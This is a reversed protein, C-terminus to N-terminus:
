AARLLGVPVGGRGKVWEGGGERGGSSGGGRPLHVHQQGPHVVLLPLGSCSLLPLMPLGLCSPVLGVAPIAAHLLLLLLRLLRLLMLRLLLLRHLLLLRRLLLARTPGGM